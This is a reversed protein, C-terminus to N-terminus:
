EKINIDKSAGGNKIVWLCIKLYRDWSFYPQKSYWEFLDKKGKSCNTSKNAPVINYINNTGGKSVPIIHEVETTTLPEGTYADCHNFYDLCQNWEDPTYEGGNGEKKTRYKHKARKQVAKGEPTQRHKKQRNLITEKNAEYWEKNRKGSCEKCKKNIGDKQDKKMSFEQVGKYEMCDHCRKILVTEGKDKTIRIMHKQFFKNAEEDSIHKLKEKWEDKIQESTKDKNRKKKEEHKKDRRKEAETYTPKGELFRVYRYYTGNNGNFLLDKVEKAKMEGNKVKNYYYPFNIAELDAMTIAM